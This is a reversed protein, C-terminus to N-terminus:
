VLAAAELYENRERDTSFCAKCWGCLRLTEEQAPSSEEFVVLRMEHPEGKASVDGGCRRCRAGPRKMFM